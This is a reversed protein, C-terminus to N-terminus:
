SGFGQRANQLLNFYYNLNQYYNSESDEYYGGQKLRHAYDSVSTASLPDSNYRNIVNLWDDVFASVNPYSVYAGNRRIGGWNNKNLNNYNAVSTFLGSEHLAQALLLQIQYETLGQDQLATYLSKLRKLDDLSGYGSLENVDIPTSVDAAQGRNSILVLALIGGGIWLATELKM